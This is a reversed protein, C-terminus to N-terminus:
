LIIINDRAVQKNIQPQVSRRYRVISNGANTKAASSMLKNNHAPVFM